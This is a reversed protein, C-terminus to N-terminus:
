SNLGKSSREALAPIVSLFGEINDEIGNEFQKRVKTFPFALIGLADVGFDGDETQIWRGAYLQVVAEGLYSGLVQDLAGMEFTERARQREIFASLYTVAERWADAPINQDALLKDQVLLVNNAIAVATEEPLPQINPRSM